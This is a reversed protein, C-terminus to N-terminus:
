KSESENIVPLFVDRQHPCIEWCPFGLCTRWRLLVAHGSGAPKKWGGPDKMVESQYLCENQSKFLTVALSMRFSLGSMSM